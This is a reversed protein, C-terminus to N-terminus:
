APSSCTPLAGALRMQSSHVRHDPPSRAHSKRGTVTLPRYNRPQPPCEQKLSPPPRPQRPPLHLHM